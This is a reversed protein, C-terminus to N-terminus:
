NSDNFLTLGIDLSRVMQGDWLCWEQVLCIWLKTTKKDLAPVIFCTWFFGSRTQLLLFLAKIWSKSELKWTSLAHIIVIVWTKVVILCMRYVLCLLCRSTITKCPLFSLYKLNFFMSIWEPLLKWGCMVLIYHWNILSDVVSNIYSHSEARWGIQTHLILSVNTCTTWIKFLICIFIYLITYIWWTLCLDCVSEDIEKGPLLSEFSQSTIVIPEEHSFYMTYRQMWPRCPQKVEM